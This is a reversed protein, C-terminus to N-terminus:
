NWIDRSVAPPSPRSRKIKCNTLQSLLLSFRNTHIHFGPVVLCIKKEMYIERFESINNGINSVLSFTNSIMKSYGAFM